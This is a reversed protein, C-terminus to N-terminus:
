GQSDNRVLVNDHKTRFYFTQTTSMYSIDRKFIDSSVHIM